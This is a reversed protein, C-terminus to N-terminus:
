VNFIKALIAFRNLVKDFFAYPVGESNHDLLPVLM